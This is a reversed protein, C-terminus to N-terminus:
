EQEQKGVLIQSVDAQLRSLTTASAFVIQWGGARGATHHMMVDKTLLKDFGSLQASM